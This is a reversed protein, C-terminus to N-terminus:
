VAYDVAAATIDGTATLSTKAASSGFTVQQRVLSDSGHEVVSEICVYYTGQAARDGSATTGDWTTTFSGAPVTGSTTTDTGGSAAYWTSLTNLWNDGNAKHYLALTKVFNGDADEIWVAMYPNRSMGGSSAFTWSVTAQASAPLTKGSTSASATATVSATSSASATATAQGTASTTTSGTAACGVVGVIAAASLGGLFARRTVTSYRSPSM